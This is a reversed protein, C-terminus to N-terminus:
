KDNDDCANWANLKRNEYYWINSTEKYNKNKVMPYGNVFLKYVIYKKNPILNFPM